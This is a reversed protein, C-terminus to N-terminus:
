NLSGINLSHITFTITQMNNAGIGTNQNVGIIGVSNALSINEAANGGYIMSHGSMQFDVGVNTVTASLDSLTLASSADFSPGASSTTPLLVNLMVLGYFANKM